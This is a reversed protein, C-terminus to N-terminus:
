DGTEGGADEWEREVIRYKIDETEEFHGSLVAWIFISLAGLGMCLAILFEYFVVAGNM